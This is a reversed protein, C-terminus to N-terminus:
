PLATLDDSAIIYHKCRSGVYLLLNTRPDTGKWQIKEVGCMVCEMHKDRPTQGYRDEEEEDEGKKKRPTFDVEKPTAGGQARRCKARAGSTSPHECKSHDIM